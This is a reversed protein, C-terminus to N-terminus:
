CHGSVLRLWLFPRGLISPLYIGRVWSSVVSGLADSLVELYAGKM